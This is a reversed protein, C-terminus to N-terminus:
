LKRTEVIDLNFTKWEMCKCQIFSSDTYNEISFNFLSSVNKPNVKKPPLTHTLNLPILRIKPIPRFLTPPARAGTGGGETAVVYTKLTYFLLFILNIYFKFNIEFYLTFKSNIFDYDRTKFNKKSFYKFWDM